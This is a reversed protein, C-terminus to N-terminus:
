VVSEADLEDSAVGDDSPPHESRGAQHVLKRVDVAEGFPPPSVDDVAGEAVAELEAVPGDDLDDGVRHSEVRGSQEALEGGPEGGGELVVDVHGGGPEIGQTCGAHLDEAGLHTADGRVVLPVEPADFQGSASQDGGIGDRDS